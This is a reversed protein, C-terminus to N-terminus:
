KKTTTKTTKSKKMNGFFVCVCTTNDSMVGNNEDQKQSERLLHKCTAHPNKGRFLNEALLPTSLGHLLGDSCILLRDGPIVSFVPSFQPDPLVGHNSLTKHGLSRSM